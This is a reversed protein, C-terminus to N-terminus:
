DYFLIVVCVLVFIVVLLMEFFVNKWSLDYLKGHNDPNEVYRYYQVIGQYLSFIGVFTVIVMSILFYLSDSPISIKEDSKLCFNGLSLIFVLIFGLWVKAKAKHRELISEKSEISKELSLFSLKTNDFYKTEREAVGAKLLGDEALSVVLSKAYAIIGSAESTAHIKNDVKQARSLSTLERKLQCLLRLGVESDVLSITTLSDQENIHHRHSHLSYKLYYFAQRAIIFKSQEDIEFNKENFKLYTLGNSRVKFSLSAILSETNLGVITIPSSIAKILAPLKERIDEKTIDHALRHPELTYLDEEKEPEADLHYILITGILERHDMSNSKIAEAAVFVRFLGSRSDKNNNDRWDVKSQM